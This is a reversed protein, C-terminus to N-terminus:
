QIICWSLADVKGAAKDNLTKLKPNIANHLLEEIPLLFSKEKENLGKNAIGLLEIMKSKISKGYFNGKLGQQKLEERQQLNDKLTLERTEEHLLSLNEQNYLLGKWLAVYGLSYPYPLSDGMRIELYGKMRIDPFFMSLLHKLQENDFSEPDFIERITKRGTYSISNRGKTIIAPSNLIYEAYAKYGFSDTFVSKILGCRDRDCNDWVLFRMSGESCEIGEFFPSNDFYTYILPALYNAVRIKKLYDHESSYDMNVQLSATGKMMHHALKGRNRFYDYMYDYRKKPLLPIDKISSVPQYGVAMLVMGNKNLIPKIEKIFGLYAEKIDTITEAPFVSFEIQGGPEVSIHGNNGQLGLLYEDEYLPKWEGQMLERLVTEIGPDSLYSVAKLTNQELILHEMELGIKFENDSKEGDKFFSVLRQIQHRYNYENEM